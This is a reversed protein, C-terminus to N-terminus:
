LKVLPKVYIGTDTEFMLSYTGAPLDGVDVSFDVRRQRRAAQEPPWRWVLRGLADLLQVRLKAAEAFRVRVTMSNQLPNPGVQLTVIGADAINSTNSMGTTDTMGTTDSMGTTDTMGTTDVLMTDMAMTDRMTTDIRTTDMNLTDIGRGPVVDFVVEDSLEYFKGSARPYDDVARLRLVYRGSDSFMVKTQAKSADTFNVEGPGRVMEWTAPWEDVYSIRNYGFGPMLQIATDTPVRLQPGANVYHSRTDDAFPFPPNNSNRFHERFFERRRDVYETVSPHGRRLTHLTVKPGGMENRAAYVTAPPCVDDLYNVFHLSPGHFRRAAFVADLYRTADLTARISGNDTFLANALELYYPFGSPRGFRYGGHQSLAAVSQILHSVRGDLGATIISLGGGQSEGYVCLEQGNWEPRTALYDIARFAATVAWRYYLGEPDTIINPEYADPDRQDPRVDHVNVALAIANAREASENDPRTINPSDGYSPLRMTAPFPGEGDPITIYGYVRRGDLQACSFRYTTAYEHDQYHSVEPQLPIADLADRQRQWFADYDSPEETLARIRNREFTAGAIGQQNNITARFTVFTPEGFSFSVYSVDSDHTQSGSALVEQNRLSHRVEWELQGRMKSEVRFVATEGAAYDAQANDTSVVVQQALGRSM